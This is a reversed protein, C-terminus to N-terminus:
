QETGGDASTVTVTCITWISNDDAAWVAIAVVGPAIGTVVGSQSVSVIGSYDSPGSTSWVVSWNIAKNAANAPSVTAVLTEAAGVAISTARKNLSV